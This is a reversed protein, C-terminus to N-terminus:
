PGSVRIALVKSSQAPELVFGEPELAARAESKSLPQQTSGDNPVVTAWDAPGAGESSERVVSM